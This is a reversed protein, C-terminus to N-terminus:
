IGDGVEIMTSGPIKKMGKKRMGERVRSKKEWDLMKAYITSLVVYNAEQMPEHKILDTTIREGLKLHAQAHSSAILTRWIVPNPAVPMTNIFELAEEVLGARSLLDVMCGYHEMKPVIRYDNVMSDFYAKGEKVLGSHSCATLLSLFAVNDPVVGASRMEEFLSVADVGRGHLAIGFIVCTWSVVTRKRQPINRFLRLANELDGCKAFMDILANCLEERMELSEREIYSEVWRGLELAGLDACASLVLVMTIEDPRVGMVQMTRFLQIAEASMGRRVYGGMMTSWSVSSSKPMEDFVNEAFHIGDECCCYMNLMANLVHTDGHFGLKLVSCHVSKGLNLDQIGACAKFM